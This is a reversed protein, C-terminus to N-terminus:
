YTASPSPSPSPTNNKKEVKVKLTFKYITKGLLKKYLKVKVVIKTNGVKKGFVVLKLPNRKRVTAVDLNKEPIVLAASPM